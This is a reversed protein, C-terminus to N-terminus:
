SLKTPLTLHTNKSHCRWYMKTIQGRIWMQRYSSCCRMANPIENCDKPQKSPVGFCGYQFSWQLDTLHCDWKSTFISTFPNTHIANFEGIKTGDYYLTLLMQWRQDPAGFRLWSYNTSWQQSIAEPVISNGKGTRSQGIYLIIM